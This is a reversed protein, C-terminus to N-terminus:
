FSFPFIRLGFYVSLLEAIARIEALVSLAERVICLLALIFAKGNAHIYGVDNSYLFSKLYVSSHQRKCVFFALGM